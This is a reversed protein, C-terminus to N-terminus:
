GQKEKRGMLYGFIIAHNCPALTFDEIRLQRRVRKELCSLHAVGAAPFVSNWLDDHVMYNDFCPARCALCELFRKDRTLRKEVRAIVAEIDREEPGTSLTRACRRALAVLAELDKV